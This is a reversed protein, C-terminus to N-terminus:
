TVAALAAPDDSLVWVLTCRCFDGGDCSPNPPGLLVADQPALMTGTDASVCPECSNEDLCSTYFAGVVDPSATAKDNRGENVTATVNSLAEKRLQATAAQRANADLATTDKLGTIQDRGLQETVRNVINRASHEGRARVRALKGAGLGADTGVPDDLQKGLVNRQKALELGVTQQGLEYLTGYHNTLADILAQPPELSSVPVGNAIQHAIKQAVTQVTPGCAAEIHDRCGDFAARLQDKSLLREFWPATPEAATDLKRLGSARLDQSDIGIDWAVDHVIAGDAPDVQLSTVSGEPGILSLDGVVRRVRDGVALPQPADLQKAPANGGCTQCTGDKMQPAECKCVKAAVDPVMQLGGDGSVGGSMPAFGEGDLQKTGTLPIKHKRGARAVVIHSFTVPTGTTPPRKGDDHSYTVHPLFDHKTALPLGADQLHAALKARQDGLGPASILAVHAGQDFSSTGSVTGTVPAMTAAYAHAIHRLTQHQNDSMKSADGLYALTLHQRAPSEDVGAFPKDPVLAVMCGTQGQELMVLDGIDLQKGSPQGGSPQNGSASADVPPQQGPRAAPPAAQGPQAPQGPAPPQPNEAAKAANEMAAQQAAEKMARVDANAVPLSARERAWDELDPDVQIVESSVLVQIYSAIESLSAEDHMTLQLTPSGEADEWNLKRIRDILRNMPPVVPPLLAGNVATLFPDEQVEATARAGVQHHGLELFDTLFSSSIATQHYELSQQIGPGSSSDFKIVDVLFQLAADAGEPANGMKWGPFMLYAVESVHMTALAREIAALQDEPVGPSHYVVPMGVAKREQGIADLRELKDKIMWNKFAHRLLSQGSWNDGEAGLRYYTLESAPIIVNPRNPLIQGIHTLEGFDDQWWQWITRPLRVDLKRPGLLTKGKYECTDWLQEYPTYGARLLLPGLQSLHETFNPSMWTTLMWWISEAIERDQDTADEGGYPELAWTGAVIPSWAALVLRRVHADTRYMEDLLLQGAPGILRPNLEDQQPLGYFNARGSQGIPPGSVRPRVTGPDPAQPTHGLLQAEPRQVTPAGAGFSPLLDRFAM